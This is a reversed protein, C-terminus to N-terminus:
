EEFLDVIVYEVEPVDRIYVEWRMTMRVVYRQQYESPINRCEGEWVTVGEDVILIHTDPDFEWMVIESVKRAQM